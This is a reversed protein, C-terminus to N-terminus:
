IKQDGAKGILDFLDKARETESCDERMRFYSTTGDDHTVEEWPLWPSLDLTWKASLRRSPANVTTKTINFSIQRLKNDPTMSTGPRAKKLSSRPKQDSSLFSQAMM